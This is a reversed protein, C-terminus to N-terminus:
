APSRGAAILGFGIIVAAFSHRRRLPATMSLGTEMHHRAPHRPRIM